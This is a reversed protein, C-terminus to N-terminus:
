SSFILQSHLCKNKRSLKNSDMFGDVIWQRIIKSVFCFMGFEESLRTWYLCLFILVVLCVSQTFFTRKAPDKKKLYLYRLESYQSLTNILDSLITALKNPSNRERGEGTGHRHWLHVTFQAKLLKASPNFFLMTLNPLISSPTDAPCLWCIPICKLWM